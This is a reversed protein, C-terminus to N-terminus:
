MVTAASRRDTEKQVKNMDQGLLKGHDVKL